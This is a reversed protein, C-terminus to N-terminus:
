HINDADGGAILVAITPSVLGLLLIGLAQKVLQLLGDRPRGSRDDTETGFGHHPRRRLWAASAPSDALPDAAQAVFVADWYMASSHHATHASRSAAHTQVPIVHHRIKTVM